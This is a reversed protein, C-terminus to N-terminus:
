GLGLKHIAIGFPILWSLIAALYVLKEARTKGWADGLKEGSKKWPKQFLPTLPINDITQVEKHKRDAFGDFQLNPRNLVRSEFNAARSIFWLCRQINRLEWRFLGYSVLAGLLSLLAVAPGTYVELLKSKELLVLAGAGIGSSVPVFGLLKFSIEDTARINACIEKYIDLSVDDTKATSM